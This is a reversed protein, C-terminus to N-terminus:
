APTAISRHQAGYLFFDSAAQRCLTDVAERDFNVDLDKLGSTTELVHAEVDARPSPSTNGRGDKTDERTFAQVGRDAVMLDSTPPAEGLSVVQMCMLTFRPLRPNKRNELLAPTGPVRSYMGLSRHTHQTVKFSICLVCFIGNTPPKSPRCNLTLTM